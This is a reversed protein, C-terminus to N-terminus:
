TGQDVLKLFDVFEPNLSLDQRLVHTSLSQPLCKFGVGLNYVCVCTSVCLCVSVGGVCM